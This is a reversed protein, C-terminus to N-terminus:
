AKTEKPTVVPNCFQLAQSLNVGGSRGIEIPDVEELRKRLWGWGGLRQAPGGTGQVPIKEFSGTIERVLCYKRQTFSFACDNVNSNFSVAMDGTLHMILM